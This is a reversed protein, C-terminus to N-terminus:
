VEGNVDQRQPSRSTNSGVAAMDRFFEFRTGQGCVSCGPRLGPSRTASTSNAYACWRLDCHYFEEQALIVIPNKQMLNKDVVFEYDLTRSSTVENAEATINNDSRQQQSVIMKGVMTERALTGGGLTQKEGDTGGICDQM